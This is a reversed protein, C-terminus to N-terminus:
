QESLMITRYLRKVTFFGVMLFGGLFASLILLTSFKPKDDELPLVPRDVIQIIPRNNEHEIKAVELRTVMEEYVAASAELDIQIKQSNTQARSYLPNPNPVQDKLSAYLGLSYDLAAKVSDVQAQLVRLNEGTKKIKTEIYFDNVNKVLEENFLKAFLQDKSEVRASLITVKRSLKDIVLDRDAFKELVEKLLSDHTVTMSAQSVEFTFDELDGEERWKELLEKGEAYRTILRKQEGDFDKTALFTQKLIRYSKYLELINETSFLSAESDLGGLNVGVASALSSVGGGSEAGAVVFTTEATYKPSRVLTYTIYAGGILTSGLVIIKWNELLYNLWGLFRLLIDKISIREEQIFRINDEAM